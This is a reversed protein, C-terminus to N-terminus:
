STASGNGGVITGIAPELAVVHILDCQVIRDTEVPPDTPVVVLVSTRTLAVLEPHRVEFKMGNSLHIIFAQFPEKRLTDRIEQQRM